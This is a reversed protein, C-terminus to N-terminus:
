RWRAQPAGGCLGAVEQEIVCRLAQRVSAQLYDRLSQASDLFQDQGSEASETIKSM